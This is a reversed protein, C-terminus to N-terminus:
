LGNLNQCVIDLHKNKTKRIKNCSYSLYTHLIWWTLKGLKRAPCFLDQLAKSSKPPRLTGIDHALVKFTTWLLSNTWSNSFLSYSNSSNLWFIIFKLFREGYVNIQLVTYKNLVFFWTQFLPFHKKGIKIHSRHINYINVCFAAFFKWCKLHKSSKGLEVSCQLLLLEQKAPGGSFSFRHAHLINEYLSNQLETHYFPPM